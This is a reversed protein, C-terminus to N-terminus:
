PQKPSSVQETKKVEIEEKKAEVIIEEKEKKDNIRLNQGLKGLSSELNEIIKDVIENVETDNELLIM